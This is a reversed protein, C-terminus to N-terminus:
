QHSSSESTGTAYRIKHYRNVELPGFREETKDPWRVRIFQRAEDSGLGFLLRPDHASAYSGDTRVRKREPHETERWVLTGIAHPATNKGELDLGLWNLGPTDNRYLHVSGDNNTVVVDIDGDNDLDAFAAGRSVDTLAFAPGGDVSLYVGNGDNLLLQNPQKLPPEIGAAIQAEIVAVAGNVVFLDLDGDNEVDFWGTGFASYPLSAAAVRARRSQDEFWAGSAAESSNRYLTNNEKVDHTVFLDPDDDHDFDAASLGMSAQAIGDINVAAGALLGQDQFRGGGQNLWLLNDLGDNAVYFDTSGDGDFDDAIVAMAGGYAGAIGAAESIDSFRGGGLNRYLRDAVPEFNSPACYTPRSSWRRCSKYGEVQFDLYNAVYLDLLGDGDIDAFSAAISWRTGAIGSEATIDRFRGGGLNEFLQNVGYNALFVDTDGDNDIDGTAIGMGYEVAVVGAALTVDEFRLQGGTSVNRYLKDGPLPAVRPKIPGGQVLWIDLKGDDDFDLVAVGAGTIELTWLAGNRGSDHVFELGSSDAVEVFRPDASVNSVLAAFALVTLLKPNM